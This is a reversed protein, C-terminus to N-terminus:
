WDISESVEHQKNYWESPYILKSFTNLTRIDRSFFGPVDFHIHRLDALAVLDWRFIVYKFVTYIGEQSFADRSPRIGFVGNCQAPRRVSGNAPRIWDASLFARMM